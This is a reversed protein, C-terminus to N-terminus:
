GIVVRTLTHITVGVGRTPLFRSVLVAAPRFTDGAVHRLGGAVVIFPVAQAAVGIGIGPFLESEVMRQIVVTEGAMGSFIVMVAPLAGVAVVGRIPQQYSEIVRYRSITAVAVRSRCLVRRAFAGVTVTSVGPRVSLRVMIAVRSFLTQTAVLIFCWFIVVTLIAAATVIRTPVPAVSIVCMVEVAFAGIAVSLICRTIVILADAGVAMLDAAPHHYREVVGVVRIALRAVSGWVLVIRTFTGAAMIGASPSADAEIM